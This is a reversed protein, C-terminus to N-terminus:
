AASAADPAGQQAKPPQCFRVGLTRLEALENESLEHYRESLYGMTDELWEVQHEPTSQLVGCRIIQQFMEDRAQEFPQPSTSEKRRNNTKAM